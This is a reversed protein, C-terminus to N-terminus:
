VLERLELLRYNGSGVTGQINALNQVSVGYVGKQRLHIRILEVQLILLSLLYFKHFLITTQM